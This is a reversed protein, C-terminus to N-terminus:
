SLSSLGRGCILWWCIHLSFWSVILLSAGYGVRASFGFINRMEHGGGDDSLIANVECKDYRRLYRIGAPFYLYMCIYTFERFHQQEQQLDWTGFGITICHASNNRQLESCTDVGSHDVLYLKHHTCHACFLRVM